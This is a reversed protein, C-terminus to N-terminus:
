RRDRRALDRRHHPRQSAAEGGGHDPPDDRRQWTRRPGGRHVRDGIEHRMAEVGIGAGRQDDVSNVLPQALAPQEVHGRRRDLLQLATARM